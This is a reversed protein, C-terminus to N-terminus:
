GRRANKKAAPRPLPAAADPDSGWGFVLRRLERNVAFAVVLPAAYPLVTLTLYEAFHLLWQEGASQAGPALHAAAKHASVDAYVLLLAVEVAAMLATGIALPRLQRRIGPAALVIAWFVPLSFTFAIADTRPMDFDISHVQQAV